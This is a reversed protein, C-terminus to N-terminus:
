GDYKYTLKFYVRGDKRGVCNFRKSMLRVSVENREDVTATLSLLGLREGLAIIADLAAAGLGQGMHEPLLRLGIESSGKLDFAYYVAEGIYEEGVRISLTLATGRALEARACELFYGDSVEGIDSLYDYGWYRNVCKDRNLRAMLPTDEDRLPALAVRGSLLEPPADLLSCESKIEVRYVSGDGVADANAHRFAGILAGLEERPVDSFVLPLEEKVAYARIEEAAAIADASDTMPIPYIFVYRGTDFIRVLACGHACTIGVEVDDDGGDLFSYVLQSAEEPDFRGRSVLHSIIKEAGEASLALFSIM